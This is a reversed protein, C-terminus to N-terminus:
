LGAAVVAVALAELGIFYSIVVGVAFLVGSFALAKRTTIKGSALPRNPRNLKDIEVDFFDNIAMGAGSVLFVCLMGLLVPISPVLAAGAILAGIWVALASMIGNLPRILKLYSNM